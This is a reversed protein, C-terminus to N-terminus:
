RELVVRAEAEKVRAKFDAYWVVEEQRLATIKRYALHLANDASATLKADCPLCYYGDGSGSFHVGHKYSIGLNRCEFCHYTGCSICKEGYSAEKACADCFCVKKLIEKEM